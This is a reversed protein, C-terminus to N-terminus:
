LILYRVYLFDALMQLYFYNSCFIFYEGKIIGSYNFTFVFICYFCTKKETGMNQYKLVRPPPPSTSPVKKCSQSHLHACIRPHGSLISRPCKISSIRKTRLPLAPRVRGPENGISVMASCIQDPGKPNM